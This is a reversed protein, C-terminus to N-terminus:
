CMFVNLWEGRYKLNTMIKCGVYIGQAIDSGSTEGIDVTKILSNIIAKEIHSNLIGLMLEKVAQITFGKASHKLMESSVRTTKNLSKSILVSNFKYINSLDLRYYNGLYILAIMMGCIFDDMAPTLGSGFGIINEAAQAIIGIDAKLVGQIFNLFRYKMFEFNKHSPAAQLDTLELDPLEDNLMGIIPGIGYLKGFTDLGRGLTKVNQILEHELCSSYEATFGPFWIQVDELSIFMNRQSCCISNISLDFNMNQTIGLKKFNVQQNNDVIVSMPAICKDKSLLTIFEHETEINCANDFISHVRGSLIKKGAIAKMLTECIYLAKM